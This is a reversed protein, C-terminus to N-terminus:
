ARAIRLAFILLSLLVPGPVRVSTVVPSPLQRVYTLPAFPRVVWFSDLDSLANPNPRAGLPPGILAEEEETIPEAATEQLRKATKLLGQCPDPASAMDGCSEPSSQSSTKAYVHSNFCPLGWKVQCIVSNSVKFHRGM